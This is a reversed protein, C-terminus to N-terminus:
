PQRWCWEVTAREILAAVPNLDNALTELGLRVAEFPVSGGGRLRISFPLEVCRINRWGIGKGVIRRTGLRGRIGTPM